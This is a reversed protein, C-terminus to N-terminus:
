HKEVPLVFGALALDGAQAFKGTLGAAQESWVSYNENFLQPSELLIRETVASGEFKEYVRQKM